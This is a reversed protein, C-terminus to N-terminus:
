EVKQNVLLGLIVLILLITKIKEKEKAFSLLDPSFNYYINTTYKTPPTWEAHSASLSGHWKVSIGWKPFQIHKSLFSM